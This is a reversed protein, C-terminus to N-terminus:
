LKRRPFDNATAGSAPFGPVSFSDNTVNNAFNFDWRSCYPLTYIYRTYTLQIFEKFQIGHQGSNSGCIVPTISGTQHTVVFQDTTCQGYTLANDNTDTNPGALEFTVFDVRKKFSAVTFDTGVIWLGPWEWIYCGMERWYTFNFFIFM